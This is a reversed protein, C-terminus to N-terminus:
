SLMMWLELTMVEPTVDRVGFGTGGTTIVWDVMNDGVDVWSKVTARIRDLDDPVITYFADSALKFGNRANLIDIILPGSKDTSADKFATDSM